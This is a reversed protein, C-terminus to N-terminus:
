VTTYGRFKADFGDGVGARMGSQTLEITVFEDILTESSPPTVESIITM